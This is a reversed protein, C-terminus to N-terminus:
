GELLALRCPLGHRRRARRCLEGRGGLRDVIQKVISLGLGTGSRLRAETGDAQAFREFIRPKFDAPIGVGHDRVSIRIVDARSEITAVM